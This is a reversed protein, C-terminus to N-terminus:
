RIKIPAIYADVFVKQYAPLLSELTKKDTTPISHAYTIKGRNYTRVTEKLAPPLRDIAMQLRTTDEYVALRVTFNSASFLFTSLLISFFVTRLMTTVKLLIYILM